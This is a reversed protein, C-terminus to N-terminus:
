SIAFMKNHKKREQTSKTSKKDEHEYVVGPISGRTHAHQITRNKISPWQQIAKKKKLTKNKKAYEHKEQLKAHKYQM